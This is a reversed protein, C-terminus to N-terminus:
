RVGTDDRIVILQGGIELFDEPYHFREEYKRMMEDSLSTFDEDGLGVVLFNGAILGCMDGSKDYLARNLPMNQLKGEENCIIAVPDEFPRVAEIYGGVQKQLSELGPQITIREPYRYPKILLVHIEPM